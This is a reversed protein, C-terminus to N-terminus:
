GDGMIKIWRGNDGLDVLERQGVKTWCFTAHIHSFPFSSVADV